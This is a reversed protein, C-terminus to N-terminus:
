RFMIQDLEHLLNMRDEIIETKEGTKKKPPKKIATYTKCEKTKKAKFMQNVNCQTVLFIHKDKRIPINLNLPLTLYGVTHYLLVMRANRKGGTYNTRFFSFLCQIQQKIINNRINTEEFIVEWLLWVIDKCYSKKIGNIEREEIEYKRKQKKTRKEWQLLWLIWYIVRDYGGNKNKLHFFIENMIIRLEDPDTFRIIHSPLLQMTANLKGQITHFQFDTTEDIKPLKDYRKSKPSTTMTVVVDILNNRIEPTNRLHIYKEKEKPPIHDYAKQFTQFRRWLFAPLGPSNIHILKSSLLFLKEFIEICYGSVICETIWYCADEVKGTEISKILTNIVERKKFDSFTKDKFAELPRPDIITSDSM